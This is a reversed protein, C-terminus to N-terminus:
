FPLMWTHTAVDSLLHFLPLTMFANWTDKMQRALYEAPLQLPSLAPSSSQFLPFDAFDWCLSSVFTYTNFGKPLWINAFQLPCGSVSWFWVLSFIVESFSNLCLMWFLATLGGTTCRSKLFIAPSFLMAPSESLCFRYPTWIPTHTDMNILSFSM